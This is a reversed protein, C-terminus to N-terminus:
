ITTRVFNILCQNEAKNTSYFDCKRLNMLFNFESLM